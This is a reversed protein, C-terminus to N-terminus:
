EADEALEGQPLSIIKTFADKESFLDIKIDRPLKTEEFEWVGKWELSESEIKNKYSYSFALNAINSCLRREKPKEETLYQNITQERRSLVKEDPEYSYEIRYISGNIVLPFSISLADGTFPILSFRFSNRLEREMRKFALQVPLNQVIYDEGRKFIRLGSWFVSYITTIAISFISIAILVEILTFASINHDSTNGKKKQREM